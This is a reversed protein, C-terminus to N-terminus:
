VASLRRKSSHQRPRAACCSCSPKPAGLLLQLAKEANLTLTIDGHNTHLTVM